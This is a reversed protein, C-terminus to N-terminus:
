VRLQWEALVARAHALSSFLTENLLEDRLCGNFSQIFANQQPKDPAIYHLAVRSEQSWRLIATRTLKTGSTASVGSDPRRTPRSSSAIQQQVRYGAAQTESLPV